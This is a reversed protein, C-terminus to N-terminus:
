QSIACFQENVYTITGRVDTVAVIAHQDLAFQQYSLEDEQRQSQVLSAKLQELSHRYNLFYRHMAGVSFSVILADGLFFMVGLVTHTEFDFSFARYPPFYYYSAMTAGIVSALLGPGTGFLVSCIAVTPFFTIFQLGANEPLLAMRVLLALLTLGMTLAYPWGGKRETHVLGEYFRDMHGALRAWSADSGQRGRAKLPSAAQASAEGAAEDQTDESSNM